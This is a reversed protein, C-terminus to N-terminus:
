CDFIMNTSKQLCQQIAGLIHADVAHRRSTLLNIDAISAFLQCGIM